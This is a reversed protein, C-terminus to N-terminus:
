AQILSLIRELDEESFYDIEIKGKRAKQTVTVKTGFIETLRSQVLQLAVEQEHSLLPKSRTGPEKKARKEQKILQELERVSLKEGVVKLALRTQDAPDSLGLLVKAHGASLIGERLSKQVAEPLNQLRLSNAISSRSKGIKDAVEEQTMNYETLLKQYAISEEMPNLEQRQLNEILSVAMSDQPEFERIIVPVQSLGALRAARWRREGAIIRYYDEEKQVIIPQLIGYQRISTALEELKEPDFHKRPQERDSEVSYIDLLVVKDKDNAAEFAADQPTKDNNRDASETIEASEATPEAYSMEPVPEADSETTDPEEKMLAPEETKERNETIEPKNDATDPKEQALGGTENTENSGTVENKGIPTLVEGFSDDFEDMMASFAERPDAAPATPYPNEKTEAIPDKSKDNLDINADLKSETKEIAVSDQEEAPDEESSFLAKLGKLLEKDM